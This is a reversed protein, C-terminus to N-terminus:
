TASIHDDASAQVRGAQPESEGLREAIIREVMSEWEVVLAKFSKRENPALHRAVDRFPLGLLSTHTALAGMVMFQMDTPTVSGLAHMRDLAARMEAASAVVDSLAADLEVGMECFAKLAKKLEIANARDRSRSAAVRQRFDRKRRLSLTMLQACNLRLGLQRTRWSTWRPGRARTAALMLRSRLRVGNM